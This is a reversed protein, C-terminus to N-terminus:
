IDVRKKTKAGLAMGKEGGRINESGSIRTRKKKITHKRGASRPKETIRKKKGHSIVHKRIGPGGSTVLV